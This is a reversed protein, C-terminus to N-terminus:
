ARRPRCRGDDDVGVPGSPAVAPRAGPRRDSVALSVFAAVVALATAWGLAARYNAALRASSTTAGATAVSLLAAIGVAAGFQRAANVLGSALCQEDNAIGASGAVTAGYILSTTGIGIGFLVIALVPYHMTVSFRFLCFLGIATLTCGMVLFRKIGIRQLLRPGFVGRLIGGVGQPVAVLGAALPSYGLVQQCYLSVILVEAANWAGILGAIIDGVVLARHRLISLPLLPDRIRGEYVAFLTILTASVLVCGVFYASRWGDDQGFTPALVSAAMGATVLSAGLLDLRRYQRAAGGGPLTHWGVVALVL